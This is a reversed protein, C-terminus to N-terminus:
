FFGWISFNAAYKRKNLSYSLFRLNDASGKWSVLILGSKSRRIKNVLFSLLFGRIQVEMLGVSPPIPLVILFLVKYHRSSSMSVKMTFWVWIKGELVFGSHRIFENRPGGGVVHKQLVVVLAWYKLKRIKKVTTQNKTSYIFSYVFLSLWRM